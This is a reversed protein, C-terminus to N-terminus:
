DEVEDPDDSEGDPVEEVYYDLWSEAEDMWAAEAEEDSPEEEFGYDPYNDKIDQVTVMPYSEYEELAVEYAASMAESGSEYDETYHYEAGGYGGGLGAFIRFRM